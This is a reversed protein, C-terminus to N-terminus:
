SAAREEELRRCGEEIREELLSLFARRPMGPPIPELFALTARGPYKILSRRPWVHGTDLAMPVVPLGLEGYLAAVGPHYPARQGPRTRTGEPFIVVSRGRAAAERAHRVMSRLASAGAGRDVAIPELAAVYWGALPVLTIERKLVFSAGPLRHSLVYTELASQHKAAILVPGGALHELGRLEVTIGCLPRLLAVIFGAFGRALGGARRRSLLLLPLGLLAAVLMAVVVLVVFLLSRLLTM